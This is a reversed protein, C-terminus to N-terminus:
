GERSKNRSFSSLLASLNTFRGPQCRIRAPRNELFTRWTNRILALAARRRGPISGLFGKKDRKELRYMIWAPYVFPTLKLVYLGGCPSDISNRFRPLLFVVGPRNKFACNALTRYFFVLGDIWGFFRCTQELMTYLRYVLMKRNTRSRVKIKRLRWLFLLFSGGGRGRYSLQPSLVNTCQQKTLAILALIALSWTM